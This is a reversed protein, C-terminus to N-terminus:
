DIPKWWTNENYNWEYAVWDRTPYIHILSENPNKDKLYGSVMNNFNISAIRWRKEPIEWIFFKVSFFSKNSNEIFEKHKKFFYKKFENMHKKEKDLDLIVDMFKDRHNRKIDIYSYIRGILDYSLEM